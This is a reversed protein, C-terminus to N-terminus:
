MQNAKDALFTEYGGYGTLRLELPLGISDAADRACALLRQDEKQTLYVVKTYKGFYTERLRPFRDLGLGEYVLRRFSRALFDTLFFCGPSQAILQHFQESGTFVEYCHAGGVRDVGEEALVRDLAGGTGCDAYLVLIRAYHPRSKRIKARVAEPIQKPANHLGAPLCEVTMMGDWGRQRLLSTIENALAGCTILLTPSPREM